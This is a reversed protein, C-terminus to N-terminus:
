GGVKERTDETEVEWRLLHDRHEHVVGAYRSDGALNRLENPDNDLDYLEDVDGYNYIYKWRETRVGKCRGRTIQDCLHHGQDGRLKEYAEPTLSGPLLPMGEEGHELFVMERVSEAQGLLVKAQSVGQVRPPVPVGALECLTPMLDINAALAKTARAPFREGWRVILPVHAMAEYVHPGKRIMRHDGMYDGHDSTFVIITDEELGRQRLRELLRGMHTDICNIMGWYIRRMRDRTDGPYDSTFRDWEVILQQRYPKNAMEGPAWVPPPLKVDDYM